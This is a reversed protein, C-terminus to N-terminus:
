DQGHQLSAVEQDRFCWSTDRGERVCWLYHNWLISDKDRSQVPMYNGIIMWALNDVFGWQNIVVGIVTWQATLTLGYTLDAEPLWFGAAKYSKDKRSGNSTKVGEMFDQVDEKGETIEEAINKCM